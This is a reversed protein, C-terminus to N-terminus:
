HTLWQLVRFHYAAANIGEMEQFVRIFDRGSLLYCRDRHFVSVVVGEPNEPDISKNKLYGTLAPYVRDRLWEWPKGEGLPVEYFIQRAGNRGETLEELVRNYAAGPVIRFAREALLEVYDAM